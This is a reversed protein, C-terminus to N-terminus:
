WVVQSSYKQFFLNIPSKGNQCPTGIMLLNKACTNAHAKKYLSSIIFQTKDLPILDYPVKQIIIKNDDQSIHHCKHM